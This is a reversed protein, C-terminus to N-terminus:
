VCKTPMFDIDTEAGCDSHTHTHVPGRYLPSLFPYFRLFSLFVLKVPTLAHFFRHTYTFTYKHLLVYMYFMCGHTNGPRRLECSTGWM